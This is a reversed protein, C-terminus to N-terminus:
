RRRLGFIGFRQVQGQQARVPNPCQGNACGGMQQAFQQPTPAQGRPTPQSQAVPASIKSTGRTARILNAHHLGHLGLAIDQPLGSVQAATFRHNGDQLHSWVASRPSVDAYRTYNGTPYAARVIGILEAQSYYNSSQQVPPTPKSVTTLTAPKAVPKPAAVVPKPQPQVEVVPRKVLTAIESIQAAITNIDTEIRDVREDIADLRENQEIDISSAYFTRQASATSAILIASLLLLSRIMM